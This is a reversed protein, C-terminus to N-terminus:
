SRPDLLFKALQPDSAVIHWISEAYNMEGYRGGFHVGLVQGTGLDVLPSGSSGGLTSCDHTLRGINAGFPDDTIFERLKGPSIRKVAFTPGFVEFAIEFPTQTDLAPHGVAFVLRDSLQFNPAATQLPLPPPLVGQSSLRLVAVDFMRSVYEVRDVAIFQRMPRVACPKERAFDVFVEADGPAFSKPKFKWMGPNAPDPEAFFDVVHRNTVLLRDRVVFGTGAESIGALGSVSILGTSAAVVATTARPIAATLNILGAPHDASWPPTVSEYRNSCTYLAPRLLANPISIQELSIQAQAPSSTRSEAGVSGAGIDQQSQGVFRIQNRKKVTDEIVLSIADPLSADPRGLRAAFNEASRRLGPPVDVGISPSELNVSRPPIIIPTRLTPLSLESLDTVLVAGTSQGFCTSSYFCLAFGLPTLKFVKM